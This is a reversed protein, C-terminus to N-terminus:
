QQGEVALDFWVTDERFDRGHFRTESKSSYRRRYVKIGGGRLTRKEQEKRKQSGTRRTMSDKLGGKKTGVKERLKGKKVKRYKM